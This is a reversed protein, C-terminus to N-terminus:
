PYSSKDTEGKLEKDIEDLYLHTRNKRSDVWDHLWKMATQIQDPIVLSWWDIGHLLHKQDRSSHENKKLM